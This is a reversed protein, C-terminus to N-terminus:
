PAAEAVNTVGCGCRVSNDHLVVLTRGCGQCVFTRLVASPQSIGGRQSMRFHVCWTAHPGEHRAAAQDADTNCWLCVNM